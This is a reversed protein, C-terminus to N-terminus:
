MGGGMMAQIMAPDVAEEEEPEEPTEEVPPRKPKKVMPNDEEM